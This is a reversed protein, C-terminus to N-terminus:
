LYRKLVEQYGKPINNDGWSNMITDDKVLGLAFKLEHRTGVCEFPKVLDDYILADLIPSLSKDELLNHGFIKVTKEKLFPYFLIFTSLCKPCQCCWSNTKQGVNCSRIVSFYKEFKSFIKAIQVDYLPRLFSFYNINSLYSTNYERFKNEFDLTKSYQHNINRGKYAVNEEDSSREDSFVVTGFNGLVSSLISVFSLLTTFPTHGNLFGKDNLELIKADLTREVILNNLGAVLSTDLSAKSPNLLFSSVNKFNKSLVEATVSSDKGGGIPVLIKDSSSIIPETKKSEGVSVYKVFDEETFDIQNEYFFQSMGNILLDHWWNTQYDDLCGCEIIIEPSVFAKWYSFLEVMGINFVLNDIQDKISGVRIADINKFSLKPAFSYEDGASFHFRVNL